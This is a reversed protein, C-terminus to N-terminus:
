RFKPGGLWGILIRREGKTVPLARHQIFSPFVYATGQDRALIRNPEADFIEFEGGEYEENPKSLQLIVALKRQLRRWNDGRDQHWAFHGAEDASYRVYHLNDQFGWVDYQWFHANAEQAIDGIMDYLPKVAPDEHPWPLWM